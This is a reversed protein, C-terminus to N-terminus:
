LLPTSLEISRMWRSGKLPKLLATDSQGFQGDVRGACHSVPRILLKLLTLRPCTAIDGSLLKMNFFPYLRRCADSRINTKSGTM